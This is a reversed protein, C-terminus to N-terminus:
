GIEVEHYKMTPAGSYPENRRNKAPPMIIFHPNPRYSARQHAKAGRMRVRSPLVWLTPPHRTSGGRSNAPTRMASLAGGGARWM